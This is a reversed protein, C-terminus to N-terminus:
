TAAVARIVVNVLEEPASINPCHPAPFNYVDVKKGSEKEIMAIRSRQFDPTLVRDEECFIWASPIYKYGPYTLKGEFSALSHLPMKRCWEAGEKQSLDSFTAPASEEPVQEM